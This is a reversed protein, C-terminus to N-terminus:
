KNIVKKKKREKKKLHGIAENSLNALWNAGFLCIYKFYGVM